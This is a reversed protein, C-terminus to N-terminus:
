TFTHQHKLLNHQRSTWSPLSPLQVFNSTRVATIIFILTKQSAFGHLRISTYRYKPPVDLRWRWTSAKRRGGDEPYFIYVAREESVDVFQMGSSSRWFHWQERSNFAVRKFFVCHFNPKSEFYEYPLPARITVTGPWKTEARFRIEIGRGDLGDNQSVYIRCIREKRNECCKKKKKKKQRPTQKNWFSM